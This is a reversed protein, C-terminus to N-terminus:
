PPKVMFLSLVMNKGNTWGSKSMGYANFLLEVLLRTDPSLTATSCFSRWMLCAFLLWFSKQRHPTPLYPLKCYGCAVSTMLRHSAGSSLLLSFAKHINLNKHGDGVINDVIMRLLYLTWQYRVKSAHLALIPQRNFDIRVFWLREARWVTRCIARWRSFSGAVEPKRVASLLRM